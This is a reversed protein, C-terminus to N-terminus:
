NVQTGMGNILSELELYIGTDNLTLHDEVEINDADAGIVVDEKLLKESIGQFVSSLDSSSAGTMQNPTQGQAVRFDEGDMSPWPNHMQFTGFQEPVVSNPRREMQALDDSIKLCDVKPSQIMHDMAELLCKTAEADPGLLERKKSSECTELDRKQKKKPTLNLLFNPSKAAKIFFLFLLQNRCDAHRVQEAVQEIEHQLNDQEERLKLIKTKLAEQEKKLTKLKAEKEAKQYDSTVTSSSKKRHKNLNHRRKINKLLHKKGKQFGQNVFEWRDPNIKRFGYTNLQRIFSSFNSHKFYGPLVEKSFQQQDWVVFSDQSLGWSVVPDTGPDSVMEYTKRLFPTPGVVGLDEMPKAVDYAAALWSCSPSLIAADRPDATTAVEEEELEEKIKVAQVALASCLEPRTLCSHLPPGAGIKGDGIAVQPLPGSHSLLGCCGLEGERAKSQSQSDTRSLDSYLPLRSGIEGHNGGDLVAFSAIEERSRAFPKAKELELSSDRFFTESFWPCSGNARGPSCGCSGGHFATM